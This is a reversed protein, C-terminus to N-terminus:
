RSFPYLSRIALIHATQKGTNYFGVTTNLRLFFADGPKVPFRAEVGDMGGGAVMDGEGDLLLYIEEERDHHHPLNTGGPIIEMIFLSTLVHGTSLRDRKSTWDGMLLQYLTSPPHSGVVQKNVESVNAIALRDPRRPEVNAPLSFGMVIVRLDSSSANALGHPVGAPLYLFDNTRLAQRESGYIVDGGGSLVFYIQEERPYDVIASTQGSNLIALGYRAVGRIVGGKRFLARYTCAGAPCLDDLAPRVNNLNARIFTPDVPRDAAPLLAALCALLAFRFM